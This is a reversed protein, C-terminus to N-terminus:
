PGVWITQKTRSRSQLSQIINIKAFGEIGTAEEGGVGLHKSHHRTYWLMSISNTSYDHDYFSLIQIEWLGNM